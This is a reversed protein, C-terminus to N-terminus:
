TGHRGTYSAGLKNLDIIGLTRRTIAAALAAELTYCKRLGFYFQQTEGKLDQWHACYGQIEGFKNHVVTVGTPLTSDNRPRKIVNQLNARRTVDRLNEIRNDSRDGNLHDIDGNPFKGYTVFWVLRHAM